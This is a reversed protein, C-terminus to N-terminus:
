PLKYKQDYLWDAQQSEILYPRGKCSVFAVGRLTESGTRFMPPEEVEGVVLDGVMAAVAGACRTSIPRGGGRVDEISEAIEEM